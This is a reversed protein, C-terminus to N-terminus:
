ANLIEELMKRINIIFVRMRSPKFRYTNGTKSGTHVNKVDVADKHAREGLYTTYEMKISKTAIIKQLAKFVKFIRSVKGIIKGAPNDNMVKLIEDVPIYTSEMIEPIMKENAKLGSFAGIFVVKINPDYHKICLLEGLIHRHGDIDCQTKATFIIELKNKHLIVLDKHKDNLLYEFKVELDPNLTNCIHKVIIGIYYQLLDGSLNRCEGIASIFKQPRQEDLIILTAILDETNKISLLNTPIAMSLYKDIAGLHKPDTLTKRQKQLRQKIKYNYFQTITYNSKIIPADKLAM